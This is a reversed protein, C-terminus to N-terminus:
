GRNAVFPHPRDLLGCWGRRGLWALVLALVVWASAAGLLLIRHAGRDMLAFSLGAATVVFCAVSLLGTGWGPLPRGGVIALTFAVLVGISTSQALLVALAAAQDMRMCWVLVAMLALLLLQVGAGPLLSAALLDRRLRAPTGLGPLLALLPLEANDKQWRQGLQMVVLLVVLLGIFGGFWAFMGGWQALMAWHFGGHRHSAQLLLLGIVLVSPLVAVALQRARGAPTMPVFMGGIAVRLSYRPQQPGSPGLDVMPLMWDPQQRIQQASDPLGGAFGDWGGARGARRFQLVMPQMWGQRYPDAARLQRWWCLACLLLMAALAAAALPLYGPEGPAPLQLQPRVANFTMPLLGVFASLMRPLLGTLLGGCLALALLSAIAMGHGGALGLAAAPLAVLATALLVVGAVTTRSLGPVRLQRGDVALLLGPALLFMGLFFEGFGIVAAATMAWGGPRMFVALLVVILLLLGGLLVSGWRTWVPSARWPALLIAAANV